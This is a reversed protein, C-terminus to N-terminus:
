GVMEIYARRRATSMALIDAERWAYARALTHVERLLRQAATAIETWLYSAIDFDLQWAEGCAPCALDILVDAQPDAEALHEALAEVLPATVEDGDAVYLCRKALLSRAAEADSATLIAALDYSNPMRFHHVSGDHEFQGTVPAPPESTQLDAIPMDFELREGCSPCGAVATIERGFAEERLALLCADRQSLSLAPLDAPSLQPYAAGVLRLARDIPHLSQGREWLDLLTAAALTM